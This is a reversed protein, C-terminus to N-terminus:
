TTIFINASIITFWCLLLSVPTQYFLELVDDVEIQPKNQTFQM